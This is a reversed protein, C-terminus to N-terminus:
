NKHTNVRHGGLPHRRSETSHVDATPVFSFPDCYDLIARRFDLIADEGDVKEDCNLVVTCM